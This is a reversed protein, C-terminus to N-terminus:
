ELEGVSRLALVVGALVLAGGLLAGSGFAILIPDM